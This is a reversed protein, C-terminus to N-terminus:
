KGHPPFFKKGNEYIEPCINWTKLAVVCALTNLLRDYVLFYDRDGWSGDSLQHDVIWQLSRPFQPADNGNIDEIMSVWATDYASISTEDEGESDLIIKIKEIKEIMDDTLVKPLEDGCINESKVNRQSQVTLSPYIFRQRGFPIFKGSCVFM